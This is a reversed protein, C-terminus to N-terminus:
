GNVQLLRQLHAIDARDKDGLPAGYPHVAMGQKADLLGELSIVPCSVDLLEATRQGFSGKPWPWDAYRGPTVIQGRGNYALLCFTIREGLKTFKLSEDPFTSAHATYGAAVLLRSVRQVDTQWLCFDIDNHPRTIQSLLFDVAWGGFLWHAISHGSLRETIDRILALQTDRRSTDDQTEM